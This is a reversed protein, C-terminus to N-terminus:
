RRSGALLMGVWRGIVRVLMVLWSRRRGGGECGQQRLSCIAEGADAADVFDPGRRGGVVACLRLQGQGEVAGQRHQRRPRNTPSVRCQDDTSFSFTPSRTRRPPTEFSRPSFPVFCLIPSAALHCKTVTPKGAQPANQQSFSSPSSSFALRFSTGPPLSAPTSPPYVATM